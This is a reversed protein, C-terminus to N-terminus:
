SDYVLSTPVDSRVGSWKTHYILGNKMVFLLHKEPKDLISIDRLPNKNLLLMDAYFGKKIQGLRNEVKMIKAPNITAAQLIELPKLVKARIAFENSQYATLNGLLDSGYCMKVGYKKAVLLSELGKELVETNKVEASPTLFGKFQDSAMVKYTVLTPCLYCDNEAMLKACEDDLMNGHEIGKVGNLICRKIAKTTYAHATVFSDYSKAVDVITQMESDLFFVNGIKGSASAVGGGSMIKIFSAGRRFNERTKKMCEEVGDAVVSVTSLHCECSEYAESPLVVPRTDGHGGTQGIARGCFFTRPGLIINEDIAEAVCNEMGGCDRVTTFGRELISRSHVGIRMLMANKPMRLSGHIGAEVPVAVMHVHFDFLGPCLFKGTCDIIKYGFLDSENTKVLDKIYGGRTVVVYGTVSRGEVPDIITANTFAYDTPDALKWPKTLKALPKDIGENVDIKPLNM